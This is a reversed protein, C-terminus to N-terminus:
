IQTDTIVLTKEDIFLGLDYIQIGEVLKM